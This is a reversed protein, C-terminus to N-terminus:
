KIMEAVQKGLRVSYNQGRDEPYIQAMSALFLNEVPTDIEPLIKSYQQVVVPQAYSTRSIYVRKIKSEDWDPFMIKLYKIFERQIEDNSLSYMENKRDLYRSLYIIHSKYDNETVLNTHEILLVFPFDKEAITTWYYDSLKESLELIMCINAKYKIKSLKESYEEPLPVNMKSFIEPSTTVIVREFNYIQGNSHVDLTKDQQPEIRDVPSSYYIKGGADIIKEALKDYIIGFSGKMYGLQEKNINKGRTSGRLKFKNWIWTGSINDADYDFKSSLLPGWVKEYVNKGANEIIWDKSSMNELQSWDKIFRAKFVLLGMRIRDIFSLEKFRLLDLPSTFPYLKRNIYISNKPELWMLESSLNLEEVLKIIEIDNTFIHHYFVELKENGVTITNVLGGHQKDAEFISVKHGKKVLEYAAVLGTAGAGVIGINM